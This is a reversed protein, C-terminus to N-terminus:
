YVWGVHLAKALISGLGFQNSPSHEGKLSMETLFTLQVCLVTLGVLCHSFRAPLTKAITNLLFIHAKRITFLVAPRIESSKM